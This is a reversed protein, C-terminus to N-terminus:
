RFGFFRWFEHEIAFRCHECAYNLEKWNTNEPMIEIKYEAKDIFNALVSGGYGNTGYSMKHCRYVSGSYGNFMFYAEDESKQKAMDVEFKAEREDAKLFFADAKNTPKGGKLKILWVLNQRAVNLDRAFSPLSVM